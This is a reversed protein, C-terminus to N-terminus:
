RPLATGPSRTESFSPYTRDRESIVLVPGPWSVGFAPDDWRVGRAQEACYFESIHYAVETNDELTLFGHACGEPVYLMVGSEASLEAAVWQRYTASSARLDIVVDYVAGRTCRVVKAEAFPAGQYHMGRLTGKRRTFSTSCQALRPNLGHLSFERRCWTRAFYGREDARREPEIIVAGKLKTETFIM